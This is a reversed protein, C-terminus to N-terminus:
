RRKVRREWSLEITKLSDLGKRLFSSGCLGARRCQSIDIAGVRLIRRRFDGIVRVGLRKNQQDFRQYPWSIEQDADQTEPMLSRCGRISSSVPRSWVGFACHGVLAGTMTEGNYLCRVAVDKGPPTGVAVGAGKNGDPLALDTEMKAAVCAVGGFCLEERAKPIPLHWQGSVVGM